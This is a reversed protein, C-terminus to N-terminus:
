RSYRLFNHQILKGRYYQFIRWSSQRTELREKEEELIKQMEAEEFIVAKGPNEELIKKSREDFIDILTRAQPPLGWYSNNMSENEPDFM